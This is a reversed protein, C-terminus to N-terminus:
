IRSALISIACLYTFCHLSCCHHHLQAQNTPCAISVKSRNPNSDSIARSRAVSWEDKKSSNSSTLTPSFSVAHHHGSPAGGGGAAAVTTRHNPTTSSNSTMIGGFRVGKIVGNGNSTPTTLPTNQPTLGLSMARLCNLHLIPYTM